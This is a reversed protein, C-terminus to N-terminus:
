VFDLLQSFLPSKTPLIFLTEFSAFSTMGPDYITM